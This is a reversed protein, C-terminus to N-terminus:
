KMKKSLAYVLRKNLRTRNEVYSKAKNYEKQFEKDRKIRNPDYRDVFDVGILSYQIMINLVGSFTWGSHGQEKVAKDVEEWSKTDHYTQMIKGADMFNYLNDIIAYNNNEIMEKVYLDDRHQPKPVLPSYILKRTNEEWSEKMEPICYISYQSIWMLYEEASTCDIKGNKTCFLLSNTRVEDLIKRLQESSYKNKKM